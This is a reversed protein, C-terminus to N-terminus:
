AQSPVAGPSFCGRLSGGHTTEVEDGIAGAALCQTAYIRREVDGFFERERFGCTVWTSIEVVLRTTRDMVVQRRSTARPADDIITM